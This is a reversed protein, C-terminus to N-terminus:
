KVEVGLVRNLTTVLADLVQSCPSTAHAADPAVACVIDNKVGNMVLSVQYQAQDPLMPNKQFDQSRLTLIQESEITKLIDDLDHKSLTRRITKTVPGGFHKHEKYVVSNDIINIEFEMGFISGGVSVDLSFPSSNQHTSPVILRGAHAYVLFAAAIFVGIVIIVSVLTKKSFVSFM